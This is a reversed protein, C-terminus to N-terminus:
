NSTSRDRENICRGLYRDYIWGRRSSAQSHAFDLRDTELFSEEFHVVYRHQRARLYRYAECDQNVVRESIAVISERAPFM